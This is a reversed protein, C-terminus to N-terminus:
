RVNSRYCSGFRGFRQGGDLVAWQGSGVATFLDRGHGFLVEAGERDIEARLMRGRVAHQAEHQFEVAFDDLADIRMDAQQMAAGLLQHLRSGIQLVHGIEIPQIIDRRHVLLVGVRQRDLAQEPDSRRAARLEDADEIALDAAKERM